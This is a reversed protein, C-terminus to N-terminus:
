AVSIKVREARQKVSKTHKGLDMVGSQRAKGLSHDVRFSIDATCSLAEEQRPGFCPLRVLLANEQDAIDEQTWVEETKYLGTAEGSVAAITKM